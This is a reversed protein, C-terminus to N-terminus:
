PFVGTGVLEAGILTSGLDVWNNGTWYIALGGTDRLVVDDRGDGNLDDFGAFRWAPGITAFDRFGQGGQTADWFITVGDAKQLIFDDALGAITWGQALAFLDSLVGSSGDLVRLQGAANKVLLDAASGGLLDGTAIM